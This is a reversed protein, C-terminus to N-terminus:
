TLAGGPRYVFRHPNFTAVRALPRQAAAYDARPPADSSWSEALTQLAELVARPGLRSPRRGRGEGLAWFIQKATVITSDLGRMRASAGRLIACHFAHDHARPGAVGRGLLYDCAAQMTAVADAGLVPRWADIRERVVELSSLGIWERRPRGRQEALLLARAARVLARASLDAYRAPDLPAETLYGYAQLLASVGCPAPLPVLLPGLTRSGAIVAGGLTTKRYQVLPRWVVGVDAAAALPGVADVVRALKRRAISPLAHLAHPTVIFLDYDSALAVDDSTPVVRGEGAFLSGTLVVSSGPFAATIERALAQLDRRARERLAPANTAILPATTLDLEVDASSSPAARRVLARTIGALRTTTTLKDLLPYALASALPMRTRRYRLVRLPYLAIGAVTRALAAAAFARSTYSSSLDDAHKRRFAGLAVGERYSRRALERVRSPHAHAVVARPNYRVRDRGRKVMRWFFDSDEGGPLAEDFLGVDDFVARRYAVSGTAAAPPTRTLLFAQSILRRDHVYRAVLNPSALPAIEGVFCGIATDEAGTTLEALWRPHPVSDADVFAVLEGRAARVGANRACGIGIRPEAVVRAGGAAARAATDDTSANDVVIVEFADRPFEQARLGDLCTDIRPAENRAAVIVSVFPHRTDAFV